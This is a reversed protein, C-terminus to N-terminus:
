IEQWFIYLIELIVITFYLLFQAFVIFHIKKYTGKKMTTSQISNIFQIENVEEFCQIALADGDLYRDAMKPPATPSSTPPPYVNKALSCCGAIGSYLESWGTFIDVLLDDVSAFNFNQNFYQPYELLFLKALVNLDIIFNKSCNQYRAILAQNKPVATWAKNFAYHFDSSANVIPYITDTFILAIAKENNQIYRQFAGNIYQTPAM